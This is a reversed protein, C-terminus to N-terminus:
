TPVFFPGIQVIHFVIKRTHVEFAHTASGICLHFGHASRERQAAIPSRPFKWCRRGSNAVSHFCVLAFNSVNGHSVIRFVVMHGFHADGLRQRALVYKVGFSKDHGIVYHLIRRFDQFCQLM